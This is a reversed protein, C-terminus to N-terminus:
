SNLNKQEYICLKLQLHSLTLKACPIICDSQPKQQRQRVFIIPLAGSIVKNFVQKFTNFVQKNLIKVYSLRKAWKCLLKCKLIWTKDHDKAAEFM